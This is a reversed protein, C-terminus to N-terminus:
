APQATPLLVIRPVYEAPKTLNPLARTMLDHRRKERYEARGAARYASRAIRVSGHICISAAVGPPTPEGMRAADGANTHKAALREHRGKLSAVVAQTQLHVMYKRLLTAEAEDAPTNHALAMMTRTPNM